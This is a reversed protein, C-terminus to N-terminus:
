NGELRSAVREALQGNLELIVQGDEAQGQNVMGNWVLESAFMRDARIGQLDIQSVPMMESWTSSTDYVVYPGLRDWFQKDADLIWNNLAEMAAQRDEFYFFLQELLERDQILDLEGAAKLGSYAANAAEYSHTGPISNIVQLVSDVPVDPRRLNNHMWLMGDAIGRSREVIPAIDDADIRLDRVIQALVVQEQQRDNRYERYDEALFGATVGLFIAFAELALKPVSVSRSTM